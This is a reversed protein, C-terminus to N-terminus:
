NLKVVDFEQHLLFPIENQTKMKIFLSNNLSVRYQTLILLLEIFILHPMKATNQIKIKM